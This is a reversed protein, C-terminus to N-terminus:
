RLSAYFAKELLLMGESHSFRKTCERLVTLWERATMSQVAECIELMATKKEQSMKM